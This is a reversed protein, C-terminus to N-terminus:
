ARDGGIADLASCPVPNGAEVLRIPECECAEIGNPDEDGAPCGLRHPGRQRAADVEADTLEHHVTFGDNDWVEYRLGDVVIMRHERTTFEATGEFRGDIEEGDFTTGTIRDGPHLDVPPVNESTAADRERRAQALSDLERQGREISAQLRALLDPVPDASM